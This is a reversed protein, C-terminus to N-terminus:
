VLRSANVAVALFGGDDAFAERYLLSRRQWSVEGHGLLPQLSSVRQQHHHLTPWLERVDDIREHGAIEISLGEMAAGALIAM